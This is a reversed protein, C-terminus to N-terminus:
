GVNEYQGPRSVFPAITSMSTNTRGWCLIGLPLSLLLTFARVFYVWFVAVIRLPISTIWVAANALAFSCTRRQIRYLPKPLCCRYLGLVLYPPQVFLWIIVSVLLILPSLLFVLFIAYLDGCSPCKPEVVWTTYKRNRSFTTTVSKSKSRASPSMNTGGKRQPTSSEGKFEDERTHLRPIHLNNKEDGKTEYVAPNTPPETMTTEKPVVRHM